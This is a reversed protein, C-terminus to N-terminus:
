SEGLHNLWAEVRAHPTDPDAVPEPGVGSWPESHTASRYVVLFKRIDAPFVTPTNDKKPHLM